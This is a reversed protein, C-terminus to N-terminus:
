KRRHDKEHAVGKYDGEKVGMFQGNTANRKISFDPNKPHELQTRDRVSGIRYDKGTNTAMNLGRLTSSFYDLFQKIQDEM